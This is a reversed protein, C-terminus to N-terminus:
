QQAVLIPDALNNRAYYNRAWQKIYSMEKARGQTVDIPDAPDSFRLDLHHAANPMVVAVLSDSLDHLIGGGSWPDLLGNSFIINSSATINWAGGWLPMWRWRPKVNFQKACRENLIEISFPMNYFMDTIGNAAYNTTIETCAQFWWIQGVNGSVSEEGLENCQLNGTYNFFVNAGQYM